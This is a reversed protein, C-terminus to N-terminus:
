GNIGIPSRDPNSVRMAISLTENPTRIFLQGRKHSNSDSIRPRENMKSRDRFHSNHIGRGRYRIHVDPGVQSVFDFRTGAPLVASGASIGRFFSAKLGVFPKGAPLAASGVLVPQTITVFQPTPTEPQRNKNAPKPERDAPAVDPTWRNLKASPRPRPSLLRKYALITRDGDQLTKDLEAKARNTQQVHVVLV